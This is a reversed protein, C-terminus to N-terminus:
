FLAAIKEAIFEFISHNAIFKTVFSGAIASSISDFILGVLRLFYVFFNANFYGVFVGLLVCVVKNIVSIVPLSNVFGNLLKFLWAIIYLIVMSLVFVTIFGLAYRILQQAIEVDPILKKVVNEYVPGVSKMGSMAVFFSLLPAIKKIITAMFGSKLSSATCIIIIALSIVDLIISM